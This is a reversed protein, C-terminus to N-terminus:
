STHHSGRLGPRVSAGLDVRDRRELERLHEILHLHHRITEQLRASAPEIDFLHPSGALRDRLDQVFDDWNGEYLEDRLLVLMQEDDTLACVPRSSLSLGSVQLDDAL